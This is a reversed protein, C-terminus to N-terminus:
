RMGVVLNEIDGLAVRAAECVEEDDHGTSLTFLWAAAKPGGIKGAAEIARILVQPSKREAFETIADVSDVEGLLSLGSLAKVAIRQNPQKLAMKFLKVASSDRKKALKEIAWFASSEAVDKGNGYESLMTVADSTEYKRCSCFMLFLILSFWAYGSFIKFAAKSGSKRGNKVVSPM